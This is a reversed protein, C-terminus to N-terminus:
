YIFPKTCHTQRKNTITKKSGEPSTFILQKLLYYAGSYVLKHRQEQYLTFNNSLKCEKFLSLFSLQKGELAKIPTHLHYCSSYVDLSVQM